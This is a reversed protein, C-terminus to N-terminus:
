FAATSSLEDVMTLFDDLVFPKGIARTAGFSIVAEQPKEGLSGGPLSSGCIAIIKVQPFKAHIDMLTDISDITQEVTTIVVVDFHNDLLASLGGERTQEATVSHGVRELVTTLTERIKDNIEIILVDAM